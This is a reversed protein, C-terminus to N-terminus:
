YEDDYQTTANDREEKRREERRRGRVVGFGLSVGKGLGIWDPLFVNTSFELDFGALRQGKYYLWRIPSCDHIRVKVPRDIHWGLGKAMSLINGTLIRELLELRDLEDPTHLYRAYNADNLALWDRLEFRFSHEWAQLTYQQLRLDAVALTLPRGNLDLQWSPRQFLQHIEDVGAEVCVLLPNRGIRKYQIAPYRYAYGGPGQEDHNHFLTHDPGVATAIAGRFASLENRDISADFRITLYRIRKLLTTLALNFSLIRLFLLLTIRHIHRIM